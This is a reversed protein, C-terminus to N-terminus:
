AEISVPNRRWLPPAEDIFRGALLAEVTQAHIEMGSMLRADFGYGYPTLHLDNAGSYAPGILVVKGALARIAPDDAAGEALLRQMPVKPVSGPPGAWAQRWPPGDAALRRTGFQWARAHPDQGSARVALLTPLSLLRLGEGAVQSAGPASAAVRRLAGDRDTTLDASGIHGRLDFDPLAVLYDPAPLMAQAESQIGALVIKGSALQRRFDQDYARAAPSGRGAIKALWQEPSASFLFDIGIVEVGVQRLVASARAFHPTWFVLPDDPHNALTAEDLEVLAVRQVATTPELRFWLDQYFGDLRSLAASRWFVEALALCLLILLWAGITLRRRGAPQLWKLM